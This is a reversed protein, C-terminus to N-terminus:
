EEDNVTVINNNSNIFEALRLPAREEDRLRGGGAPLLYGKSYELPKWRDLWFGDMSLPRSRLSHCSRCIQIVVFYAEAGRVHREVSRDDWKVHRERARCAVQGKNWNQIAGYRDVEAM